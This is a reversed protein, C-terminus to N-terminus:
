HPLQLDQSGLNVTLAAGASLTKFFRDAEPM